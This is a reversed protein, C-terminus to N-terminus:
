RESSVTKTHLNVFDFSQVEVFHLTRCIVAFMKQRRHQFYTYYITKKMKESRYAGDRRAIPKAVDGSLSRWAGRHDDRVDSVVM